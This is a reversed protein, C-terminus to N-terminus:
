RAGATVSPRSSPRPGDATTARGGTGMGGHRLALPLFPRQRHEAADLLEEQHLTPNPNPNPNPNLTLTPTPTRTPNPTPTLTQTQTQSLTTAVEEELWQTWESLSARLAPVAPEATGAATVGDRTGAAVGNDRWGKAPSGPPPPFAPLPATAALSAQLRLLSLEDRQNM